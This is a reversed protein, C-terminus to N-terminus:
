RREGVLRAMRAKVGSVVPQLEAEADKWLDVFQGHYDLAKERHGQAESLEGLRRLIVARLGADWGLREIDPTTLFREYYAIASDPRGARDHAEGIDFLECLACDPIEERVRVRNDIAEQYRGEALAIAALARYWAADPDAREREDMQARHREMLSRAREVRGARAYFDAYGLTNRQGEPRRELPHRRLAEDMLSAARPGDGHYWLAVNARSELELVEAPPAGDAWSFGAQRALRLADARLRQAAAPRGRLQELGALNFLAGAELEPTGRHQERHARFGAAASDYRGEAAAIGARISRVAVNAPYAAEFAALTALATDRRGLEYSSEIANTYATAPAGGIAILRRYLDLAEARRGVQSYAVGLNNLAVRDNPYKDLLTRYSAMTAERNEEVYSHYGAEALYRERETLRHRLEYARTFAWKYREEGLSWNAVIIGLKRYAMAFNSDAAIARELIAIAGRGDGLNNARDAQAFLRLAETSRTTVQELPPDARITRLSEGVKARLNGSLRDIAGALDDPGASNERGAWLVEGTAAILQASLVFGSGLSRLEGTLIAKLGEREAIDRAVEATISAGAPQDMRQLVNRVQVDELVTVSPSQALDIRFLETVTEGLVSDSTQNEFEALVIREREALVGSAVLSGVPGIGLVRMTMYASALVALGGFAIGGGAFARRWTLHRQVGTPTALPTGAMTAVARQREHRGTLVIIPMGVALLAIAGYFVWDPLGLLQVVAYVVLLVVVSATVFLGAVRGPHAQAYARAADSATFAPHPKTGTPTIGGTAPTLVVDLQPLLEEARQWRDAAKKALCRMILANLGEPVTARHRTAPEPAETVHAALLGQPTSAAFPLRGCLMEYALVGVAYIDARHDVHPDAVAQEPAMYAPTGLAVGLSTLSSGAGTSESVAKAVGFDTVVAHGESLLVNDPKIDRHVVGHRHAYALADVVERLIRAAESIPLEGERALKARLSEGQIFPMVYYLLDGSAGATLLQVVHPHQLKAALQIERRFRDVNVGASMEPPLVKIVVRRALEVEEALFVRSMGGGGLEKEIRYGSGLAAALRDQLEAM